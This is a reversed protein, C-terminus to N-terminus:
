HAKTTKAAERELKAARYKKLMEILETERDSSRMSAVQVRGTVNVQQPTYVGDILCLRHLAIVATRLDAKIVFKGTEPDIHDPDIATLCRELVGELQARRFDTRHGKMAEGDKAYQRLTAAIYRRVQRQSVDWEKALINAITGHSLCGRLLQDVYRIREPDFRMPRQKSKPKPPPGDGDPVDDSM